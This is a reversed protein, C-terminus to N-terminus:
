HRGDVKSRDDTEEATDSGAYDAAPHGFDADAARLADMSRGLTRLLPVLESLGRSEADAIASALWDAVTM